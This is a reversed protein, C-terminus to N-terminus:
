DCIILIGLDTIQQVLVTFDHLITAEDCDYEACLQKYIEELTFREKLKELIYESTENFEFLDGTKENYALLTDDIKRMILDSSLIVKHMLIDM